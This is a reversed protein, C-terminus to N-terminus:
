NVFWTSHSSHHYGYTTQLVLLVPICLNWSNSHASTEVFIKLVTFQVLKFVGASCRNLGAAFLLFAFLTWFTQQYRGPQELIPHFTNWSSTPPCGDCFAEVFIVIWHIQFSESGWCGRKFAWGVLASRSGDMGSLRSLWGVSTRDCGQEQGNM